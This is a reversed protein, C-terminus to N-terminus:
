SKLFSALEIRAGGQRISELAAYIAGISQINDSAACEPERGQEIASDFEKLIATPFAEDGVVPARSRVTDWETPHTPMHLELEDHSWTVGGQSGEIHWDGNWTTNKGHSCWVGTHTFLAGNTMEGTLTVGAAGDFWSWTPQFATARLWDFDLGTVSRVMDVHHVMMDTLLPHEIRRYFSDDDFRATKWFAINIIGVEGLLGSEVLRQTTRSLPSFRYDQSVMWTADSQGLLALLGQAEKLTPALPKESLVHLGAMLAEAVVEERAAPTVIDLVSDAEPHAVRADRLSPYVAGADLRLDRVVAAVVRPNADVYAVAEAVGHLPLTPLWERARAGLGVVIFRRM